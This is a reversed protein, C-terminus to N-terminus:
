NVRVYNREIQRFGNKKLVKDLSYSNLQEQNTFTVGAVDEGHTLFKKLLRIAYLSGREKKTVFWLVENLTVITDDFPYQSYYGGIFGIVKDDKHLTYGVGDEHLIIFKTFDKVTGKNFFPLDAEDKFEQILDVIENLYRLTKWRIDYGTKNTSSQKGDM